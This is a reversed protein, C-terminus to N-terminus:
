GGRSRRATSIRAPTRQFLKLQEVQPQIQPVFQISSAGTGIVAVRKGTLDCDHNWHASHFLVGEFKDLGPLPPLAPETLPGQGAILLDATL